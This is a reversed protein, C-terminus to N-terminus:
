GLKIVTIIFMDNADFAIIVRINDDDLTKGRIAYKWTKFVEDFKTKSKEHYGTKLVYLVDLLDISRESERQLAHVTQTYRDKDICNRITELLKELQPPRAEKRM